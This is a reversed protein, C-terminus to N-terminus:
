IIKVKLLNKLTLVLKSTAIEGEVILESPCEAIIANILNYETDKYLDIVEVMGGKTVNTVLQGKIDAIFISKEAKIRPSLMFSAVNYIDTDNYGSKLLSNTLEVLEQWESILDDIQFDFLGDINYCQTTTLKKAVRQWEQNHEFYVLASVLVCLCHTMEDIALRSTIYEFKRRVIIEDVVMQVVKNLLSDDVNVSMRVYHKGENYEVNTNLAQLSRVLKEAEDRRTSSMIIEKLM